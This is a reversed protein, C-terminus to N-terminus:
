NKQLELNIVHSRNIFVERGSITVFMLDRGSANLAGKIRQYAMEEVTYTVPKNDSGRYIVRVTYM